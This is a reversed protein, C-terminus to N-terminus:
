WAWAETSTAPKTPKAPSTEAMFLPEGKMEVEMPLPALKVFLGEAAVLGSDAVMKSMSEMKEPSSLITLIGSLVAFDAGQIAGEAPLRSIAEDIFSATAGLNGGLFELTRCKNALRGLLNKIRQSAQSAGPKWTDQVDQAIEHLVRGALGDVETKIGDKASSDVAAPHIRYVSLRAGTQHSVHQATPFRGKYPAVQPQLEQWARLTEDWKTVLEAKANEVKEAIPNLEAVLTDVANDPVAWGSLFRVGRNRCARNAQQRAAAFVKLHSPDIYRVSGPTFVKSDDAPDRSITGSVATVDFAVVNIKEIVTENM